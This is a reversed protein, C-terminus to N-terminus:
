AGPPDQPAKAPPADAAPEKPLEPAPEAAPPEPNEVPAPKPALLDEVEVYEAAPGLGGLEGLLELCRKNLREYDIPGPEAEATHPFIIYSAELSSVPRAYVGAKPNILKGLRLSAEGTKLKPGYDGVLAPIVKKGVVVVAYDGPQPRYTDSRGEKLTLPIVIFPDYQALLYSYRKLDFIVRQAYDIASSNKPKEDKLKALRAEWPALLPNPTKTRKKWRYSTTPQYHDSKRISEPMTPLRDGDSGDSVIDMDAQIWLAHRNTGRATIELITDTDYFNHRDLPQSLAAMNKRVSNQKHLYLSHFWPSVKAHSMLEDYQALVRPLHPNAHLLEQGNAAHPLLLEMGMKVMYAQKKKRDQSATSGQNFTLSSHLHLGRALTTFHEFTGTEMKQPLAPPFPPLQIEPITMLQAPQWVQQASSNVPVAVPVEVRVEVPVEVRKEVIKEVIRPEPKGKWARVLRAPYPTYLSGAGLAAIALLALKWGHATLFRTYRKM